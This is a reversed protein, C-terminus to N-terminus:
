VARGLIKRVISDAFSDVEAELSQRIRDADTGIKDRLAALEDRAKQNIKQIIRKEEEAAATLLLEKEQVGKMRAAKVGSMFAADKEKANSSLTEIGQTLGDVKEQRKLIMGRIPKYLVRNLVWILFLFNVIQLIFSGDVSIM